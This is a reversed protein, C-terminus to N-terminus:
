GDGKSGGPPPNGGGGGSQQGTPQTSEKTPKTPGTAYGVECILCTLVLVTILMKVFRM